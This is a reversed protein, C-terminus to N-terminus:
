SLPSSRGFLSPSEVNPSHLCRHVVSYPLLSLMRAILVSILSRICFYVRCEPPSFPSSRGFVSLSEANPCHTRRHAVSYLFRSQMRAILAAILSRIRFAVRCEPLSSLSSRGFLSPLEASPFILATILVSFGLVVFFVYVSGARLM